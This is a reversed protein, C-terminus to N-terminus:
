AFSRGQEEIYQRIKKESGKVGSDILTIKHGFVIIVNVFRPLKKEPSIAIEFDIKLLHVQDTIKM